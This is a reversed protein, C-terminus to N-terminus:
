IIYLITPTIFFIILAHDMWGDMWGDMGGERGGDM